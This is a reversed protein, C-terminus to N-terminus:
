HEYVCNGTRLDVSLQSFNERSGCLAPCSPVIQLQQGIQAIRISCNVGHDADYGRRTRAARGDRLSARWRQGADVQPPLAEAMLDDGEDISCDSGHSSRFLSSEWYFALVANGRLRFAGSDAYLRRDGDRLRDEANEASCSFKADLQLPQSQAELAQAHAIGVAGVWAAAILVIAWKM